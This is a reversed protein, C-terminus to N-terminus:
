ALALVSINTPPGLTAQSQTRVESLLKPLTEETTDDSIDQVRFTLKCKGEALATSTTTYTYRSQDPNSKILTSVSTVVISLM